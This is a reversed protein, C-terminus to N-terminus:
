HLLLAFGTLSRREWFGLHFFPIWSPPITLRTLDCQGTGTRLWHSVSFLISTQLAPFKLKLFYSSSVADDDDNYYCYDINKRYRTHKLYQGLDIFANAWHIRLAVMYIYMIMMGMECISFSLSM